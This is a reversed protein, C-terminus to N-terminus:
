RIGKAAQQGRRSRLDSRHGGPWRHAVCGQAQEGDVEDEAEGLTPKEAGVVAGGTGLVQLVVAALEDEAEIPAPALGDAVAEGAKDLVGDLGRRRRIAADQM